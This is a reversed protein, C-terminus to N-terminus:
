LPCQPRSNCTFQRAGKLDGATTANRQLETGNATTGDGQHVSGAM